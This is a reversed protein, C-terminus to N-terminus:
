GMPPFGRAAGDALLVHDISQQHLQEGAINDRFGERPLLMGGDARQGDLERM